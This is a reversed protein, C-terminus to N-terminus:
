SDMPNGSSDYRKFYIQKLTDQGGDQFKNYWVVVFDGTQDNIVAIDPPSPDELNIVNDNIIFEELNEALPRAGQANIRTSVTCILVFVFPVLLILARM